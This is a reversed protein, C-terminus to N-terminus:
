VTENQRQQQLKEELYLVSGEDMEYACLILRGKKEWQSLLAAVYDSCYKEYNRPLLIADQQALYNEVDSENDLLHPTSYRWFPYAEM